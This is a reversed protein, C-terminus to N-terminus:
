SGPSRAHARRFQEVVQEMAMGRSGKVLVVDGSRLFQNVATCLEAKDDFHWVLSVRHRDIAAALERAAKGCAFVADLALRSIKDGIERHAAISAAGLELMDGLVAVRRAPKSAPMAVLSDLAARMSDPNANYADNIVTVGAIREVQMRKSISGCSEVGARADPLSVGFQRGLAVAALANLANHAGPIPVRMSVGDVSFAACGDEGMTAHVGRVQAGESFGFTLTRLEGWKAARLTPDDINVLATGDHEALYDFLELEARAVGQLDQFYELHERGINTILGYDPEAITCLHAIEGFHNTGMEVVAVQHERQLGALTLPVGIHNNLNGPTRHIRHVQSLVSAVLEKTTTKGNSGGIAVVPGGWRRRVARGCKQLAQLVDQVVLFNGAPRATKEFWSEEVVAALAKAQVSMVFDHGDFRDGRLACFLEREKTQRSDTSIGVPHEPLRNPDGSFAAPSM